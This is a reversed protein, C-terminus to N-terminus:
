RYQNIFQIVNTGETVFDKKYWKFLESILVKNSPDDVSVHFDDNLVIKSRQDLQEDLRDPRYATNIIKPCGIAACVLVFHFRADGFEKLLKNHEIENLTLFEGAVKHKTLDFFGSVEKVSQIPYSEIVSHIVILNYTNIWFTKIDNPKSIASLDFTKISNILQSIESRNEYILKYEVFGNKVYNKLFKDTDDLFNNLTTQAFINSVLVYSFVLFIVRRM